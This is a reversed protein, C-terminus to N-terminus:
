SSYPDAADRLGDGVFNFSIVAVIIFAGPLLLWPAIAVAHLNQAENLLVGLSVVPPRLGLGLFSLSTESLIMTPISLTLSVIVYSLFSPLLHRSIIGATTANSVVAATVFDEKRISLLKSRVVRAMGTWGILSVIITIGFYVRISPWNAPLAAALAMWLPLVPISRLFEIVRQVAYDFWGGLYGSLGGISLGLVFSVAVGILGISLSIRTGYVIRSFLDQGFTDSGYLFLTGDTVGFLHIDSKIFGWMKYAEGPVFFRINRRSTKDEKYIKRWTVPDEEVKLDYIFPRFSFGDEGFFHIRQPPASLMETNRYTTNYPAVFECFIGTLYLISLVVFGVLALKHRRLKRWMLQYQSAIYYQETDQAKSRKRKKYVM